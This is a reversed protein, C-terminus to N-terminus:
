MTVLVEQWDM